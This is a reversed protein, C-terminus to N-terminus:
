RRLREHVSRGRYGGRRGCDRDQSTQERTADDEGQRIGEARGLARASTITPRATHCGRSVAGLPVCRPRIYSGSEHRVTQEPCMASTGSVDRVGAHGGIRDEAESGKSNALPPPPRPGAPPTSPATAFPPQAPARASRHSSRRPRGAARSRARSTKRKGADSDSRPAGITQHRPRAPRAQRRYPDIRLEFCHNAPQPSLMRTPTRAPDARLERAGTDIHRRPRRDVAGQLAVPQDRRLRRPPRLRDLPELPRECIVQPLDVRRLHLQFTALASPDDVDQVVVGAVQQGREGAQLQAARGGPRTKDGRGRPVPQWPLQERIVTGVEGPPQEAELGVEFATQGPDPDLQDAGCGRVRLREALELAEVAREFFPQCVLSGGARELLQLRQEVAEARM